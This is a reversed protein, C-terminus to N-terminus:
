KGCQSVIMRDGRRRHHTSGPAVKIPRLVGASTSVLLSSKFFSPMM